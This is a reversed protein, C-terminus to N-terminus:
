VVMEGNDDIIYGPHIGMGGKPEDDIGEDGVYRIQVYKGDIWIPDTDGNAIWLTDSPLPGGVYVPEVMDIAVDQDFVAPENPEIGSPFEEPYEDWHQSLWLEVPEKASNRLRDFVRRKTAEPWSHFDDPFHYTLNLKVQM